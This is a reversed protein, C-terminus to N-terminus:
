NLEFGPLVDSLERNRGGFAVREKLQYLVSAPLTSKEPLINEALPTIVQIGLDCAQELLVERSNGPMQDFWLDAALIPLKVGTERCRFALAAMLAMVAGPTADEQRSSRKGNKEVRTARWHYWCRCDLLRHLQELLTENGHGDNEAAQLLWDKLAQESNRNYFVYRSIISDLNRYREETPHLEMVLSGSSETEIRELCANVYRGIERITGQHEQLRTLVGTEILQEVVQVSAEDLERRATDRATRCESDIETLPRDDLFLTAANEDYVFRSCLMSDNRSLLRDLMDKIGALRGRLQDCQREAEVPTTWHQCQCLDIAMEAPDAINYDRTIREILQQQQARLNKLERRYKEVDNSDTASRKKGTTNNQQPLAQQLLTSIQETLQEPVAVAAVTGQSQLWAVTLEARRRNFQEIFGALEKQKLNNEKLQKKLQDIESSLPALEEEREAVKREQALRRNASGILYPEWLFLAAAHSRSEYWSSDNKSIFTPTGNGALEQELIALCHPDSASLDLYHGIWKLFKASSLDKEGIGAIRIGPYEKLILDAARRYDSEAVVLLSLLPAGIFEELRSRDEPSTEAQWELGQYLPIFDIGNKELAKVADSWFNIDPQAEPCKELEIIELQLEEERELMIEIEKDLLRAQDLLNVTENGAAQILEDWAASTFLEAATIRGSLKHQLADVNLNLKQGATLVAGLDALKSKLDSGSSAAVTQKKGPRGRKAATGTNGGLLATIQEALKAASAAVDPAATTAPAGSLSKELQKLEKQRLNLAAMETLALDRRWQKVADLAERYASLRACQLKLHDFRRQQLTMRNFAPLIQEIGSLDAPPLVKSLIDSLGGNQLKENNLLRGSMAALCWIAQNEASGFFKEAVKNRYLDIRRFFGKGRLLASLETANRPKMADNGAIWFDIKDVPAEIIAGWYSVAKRRGAEMGIALTYRRGRDGTIEVAIYTPRDTVPFRLYYFRRRAPLEATHLVTKLYLLLEEEVCLGTFAACIADLLAVAHNRESGLLLLHAGNAVAVTDDEVGNCNILRLRSLYFFTSNRM